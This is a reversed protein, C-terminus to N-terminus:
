VRRGYRRSCYSSTAPPSRAPPRPWSFAAAPSWNGEYPAIVAAPEGHILLVTMEDRDKDAAAIIARILAIAMDPMDQATPALNMELHSVPNNEKRQNSDIERGTAVGTYPGSIQPSLVLGEPGPM